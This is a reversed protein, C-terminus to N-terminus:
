ISCSTHHLTTSTTATTPIFLEQRRKDDTKMKNNKNPATIAMQYLIYVALPDLSDTRLVAVMNTLTYWIGTMATSYFDSEMARLASTWDREVRDGTSELGLRAVIGCVCGLDIHLFSVPSVDCRNTSTAQACGASIQLPM